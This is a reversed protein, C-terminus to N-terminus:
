DEKYTPLSRILQRIIDTKTRGTRSSQKDLANYELTTAYLSM